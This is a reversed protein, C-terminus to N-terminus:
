LLMISGLMTLTFGIPRSFRKTKYSYTSIVKKSFLIGLLYFAVIIFLPIIRVTNGMTMYHITGIFANNFLIWTSTIVAMKINYGLLVTLITLILMHSSIGMFGYLWGITSGLVLTIMTKIM